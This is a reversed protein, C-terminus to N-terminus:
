TRPGMPVRGRDREKPASSRVTSQHLAASPRAARRRGPRRRAGRRDARPLHGVGHAQEDVVGVGVGTRGRQDGLDRGGLLGAAGAGAQGARVLDLGAEVAVEGRAKRHPRRVAVVGGVVGLRVGVDDNQLVDCRGDLTVLHGTAGHVLDGGGDVFQRQQVSWAPAISRQEVDAPQVAGRGLLQLARDGEDAVRHRREALLVAVEHRRCVM